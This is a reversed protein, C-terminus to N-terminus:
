PPAPTLNFTATVSKPGDMTVPCTLASGSCGGGSWGAFESGADPAATLTVSTSDAYAQTCDGPCSIGALDSSVSGIGTGSPDITVDLTHEVPANDDNTITCTASQGATLTVSAGSQSGGVCVWSGASYGPPGASESLTYTGASVDGEVGGAGTIPTPGAASLTWDTETATGGDNNVVDKVLKLHALTSTPPPTAATFTATVSRPGDMTVTCTLATGSCDGTWGGFTSSGQPTATLTVKTGPDYTEACDTGCNIGAPSSSVAGTGVVGVSLGRTTTEGMQWVDSVAPEDCAYQDFYVTSQGDSGVYVRTTGIDDGSPLRWLRTDPGGLPRSILRVGSGCARKARAFYVTGDPAVSPARQELDANPIKTQAGDPIHYLIV